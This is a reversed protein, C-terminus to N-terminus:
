VIAEIFEFSDYDIGLASLCYEGTWEHESVWMEAAFTMQRVKNPTVYDLGRGQKSNQRYKVEVFYISNKKKAVIDIECYRTKWNLEVIDFGQAKLYEAARKEATHGVIYNSM